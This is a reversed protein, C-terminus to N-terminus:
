EWAFRVLAKLRTRESAVLGFSWLTIMTILSAGVFLQTAFLEVRAPFVWYCFVAVAIPAICFLPRLHGEIFYARRGVAIQKSRPMNYVFNCLIGIVSGVLTGIAIGIAGWRIAALISVIVNSFGEILPSITVLRQQATGILLMAYPVASLRIVNALVLIRLIMTAKEAYLPGVWFALIPRTAVFLPLGSCLLLLMGYRTTSILVRGLEATEHRAQLIAAEPILTAFIANQLGLIFTILTAAVTYYAVSPFDFVGVLFIDLGTVLLTGFSWISLSFCYAWIESLAKRSVSHMAVAWGRVSRAFMAYQLGYSALNVSCVVAGMVILGSGRGAAVVILVASVIRSCGIIVAPVENKQMGIFVGSFVSAPLGAALSLGVLVLSVRVQHYLPAPMRSFLVPLKWAVIIVALAAILMAASLAALSTSVIENRTRLDGRETTYAVFRGVATQIGFDLYTAYAGIQLILAWAGYAEVSMKRTLFPAIAIAVLAAVSGRGVNALSNKCLTIWRPRQSPPLVDYKPLLDVNSNM